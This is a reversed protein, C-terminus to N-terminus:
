CTAKLFVPCNLSPCVYGMPNTLTIGCKPCKDPMGKKKENEQQLRATYGAIYGNEYGREYGDSYPDYNTDEYDYKKNM